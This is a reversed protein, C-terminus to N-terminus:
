LFLEKLAWLYLAIWILIYLIMAGSYKKGSIKNAFSLMEKSYQMFVFAMLFSVFATTAIIQVISLEQLLYYLIVMSLALFIWSTRKGNKYLPTVFDMWKKTGRTFIVFLKILGLTVFLFAIWQVPTFVM